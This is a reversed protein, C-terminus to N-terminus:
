EGYERRSFVELKKLKMDIQCGFISLKRRESRDRFAWNKLALGVGHRQAKAATKGCM